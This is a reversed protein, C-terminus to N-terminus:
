KLNSVTWLPNFLVTTMWTSDLVKPLHDMEASLKTTMQISPSLKPM